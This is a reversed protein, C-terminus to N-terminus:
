FGELIKNILATFYAGNGPGFWNMEKVESNNINYYKDPTIYGIYNGNFCTIVPYIKRQACISDFEPYFEGSFDCPMGLFVVDGIRLASINAKIEGFVSNFVWERFRWNKSIRYHPSKLDIAIHAFNLKYVSDTKISNSCIEVYRTISDAYRNMEEFTNFGTIVPLLNDKMINGASDTSFSCIRAKHSAVAGICFISFNCVSDEILKKNLVGPYNASLDLCRKSISTPHAQFVSLIATQGGNQKIKLVRIWSDSVSDSSLRNYVLHPVNIKQFGITSSKLNEVAEIISSVTKYAIEAVIPENYGGMAIDGMLGKTWGGFSSHTHTAAYYIGDLKLGSQAIRQEVANVLDPSVIMLDYSVIVVTKQESRFVLARVYLSDHVSEFNGRRGYGIINIKSNPTINGKAWGVKVASKNSLYNIPPITEIRDITNQFYETNQFSSWDVPKFLIAASLFLFLLIGIIIKFLIKM